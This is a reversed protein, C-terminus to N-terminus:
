PDRLAEREELGLAANYGQHNHYKDDDTPAQCTQSREGPTSSGGTVSPIHAGIYPSNNVISVEIPM